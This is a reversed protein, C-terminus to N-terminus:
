GSRLICFDCAHGTAGALWGAAPARLSAPHAATIRLIVCDREVLTFKSPGCSTVSGGGRLHKMDRQQNDVTTLVAIVSKRVVM